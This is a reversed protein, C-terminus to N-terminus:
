SKRMRVVPTGHLLVTGDDDEKISLSDDSEGQHSPCRTRYEDGRNTYDDLNELVKDIGRVVRDEV